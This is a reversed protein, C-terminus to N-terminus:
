FASHTFCLSTNIRLSTNDRLSASTAPFQGNQIRSAHSSVHLWSIRDSPVGSCKRRRKGAEMAERIPKKVVTFCFFKEKIAPWRKQGTQFQKSRVDTCVYIENKSKMLFCSYILSYEKGELQKLIKSVPPIQIIQWVILNSFTEHSM